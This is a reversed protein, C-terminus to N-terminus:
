ANVRLEYNESKCSARWPGDMEWTGYYKEPCKTGGCYDYGNGEEKDCKCKIGLM